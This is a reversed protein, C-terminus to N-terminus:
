IMAIARTFPSSRNSASTSKRLRGMSLTKRHQPRGMATRCSPSTIWTIKDNRSAAQANTRMEGIAGFRSPVDDLGNAARKILCDHDADFDAAQGAVRLVAIRNGPEVEREGVPLLQVVDGQV